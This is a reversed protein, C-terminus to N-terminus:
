GKDAAARGLRELAAKQRRQSRPDELALRAGQGLASEGAEMAQLLPMQLAQKSMAYAPVCDGGLPRMARTAEDVLDEAAVVQHVMGLHRAQQVSYSAGSLIARAAAANGLVYRMLEVFRPPMPVGVLVENVGLRADGKVAFRFDCCLALLLGGALAHGNIAALTPRSMALLRLLRRSFEGLVHDIAAGDGSQFVPFVSQLDLGASFVAGQGTLVMPLDPFDSEAADLAADMDVFFAENMKNVTSSNMTVVLVGHEEKLTWAM